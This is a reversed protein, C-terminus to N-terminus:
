APMQSPNFAGKRLHVGYEMWAKLCALFNAWGETNSKLWKIGAEDNPKSKETITVFTIDDAVAQLNIEILTQEGDMAGDWSFSIYKDKEVKGVTVPFEMDMEPFRWKLKEDEEMRGNSESIFYNKMQNPDVINEFVASVPKLIQLAAKIELRDM